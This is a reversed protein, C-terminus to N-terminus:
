HDAYNCVRVQRQLVYSDIDDTENFRYFSSDVIIDTYNMGLPIIYSSLPLPQNHSNIVIQLHFSPPNTGSGGSPIVWQYGWNNMYSFHYYHRFSNWTPLTEDTYCM